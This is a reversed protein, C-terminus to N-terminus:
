YDMRADMLTRYLAKTRSPDKYNIITCGSKTSIYIFPGRDSELYLRGRALGELTFHGKKVTGSDFGNNRTLIKPIEDELSIGTIEEAPITAGYMGSIVIGEPTAEVGPSRSGYILMAGVGGLVLVAVALVAILILNDKKNRKNKDFKQAGFVVLIIGATCLMIVAPFLDPYWRSAILSGALAFAGLAFFSNGMFNALGAVDVNEKKEKPMTNYGATLWYQKGYKVIAAPIVLFIFFLMGTLVM